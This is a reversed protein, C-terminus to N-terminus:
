LCSLSACKVPPRPVSPAPVLDNFSRVPPGALFSSPLTGRVFPM